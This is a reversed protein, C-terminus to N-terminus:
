KTNVLLRKYDLTWPQLYTHNAHENIKYKHMVKGCLECTGGGSGGDGEGGYDHRRETQASETSRM